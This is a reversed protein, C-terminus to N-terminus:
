AIHSWYEQEIKSIQTMSDGKLAKQQVQMKIEELYRIDSEGVITIRPIDSSRHSRGL